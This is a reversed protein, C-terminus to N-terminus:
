LYPEGQRARDLADEELADKVCSWLDHDENREYTDGHVAGPVLESADEPDEVVLPGVLDILYCGGSRSYEDPEWSCYARCSFGLAYCTLDSM